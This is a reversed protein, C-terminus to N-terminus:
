LEGPDNGEFISDALQLKGDSATVITYPAECIPCVVMEGVTVGDKTLRNGCQTCKANIKM